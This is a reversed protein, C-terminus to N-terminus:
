VSELLVRDISSSLLTGEGHDSRDELSTIRILDLGTEIHSHGLVDDVKQLVFLLLDSVLSEKCHKLDGLAELIFVIVFHLICHIDLLFVGLLVVEVSGKILVLSHRHGGLLFYEVNVM